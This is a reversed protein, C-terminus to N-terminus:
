TNRGDGVSDYGILANREGEQGVRLSIIYLHGLNDERGRGRGRGRERKRERERWKISQAAWYITTFQEEEASGKVRRLWLFSFFVRVSFM